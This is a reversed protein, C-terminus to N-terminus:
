SYELSRGEKLKREYQWEAAIIPNSAHWVMLGRKKSFWDKAWGGRLKAFNPSAVKLTALM